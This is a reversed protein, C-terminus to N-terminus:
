TGHDSGAQIDFYKEFLLDYQIKIWILICPLAKLSYPSVFNDRLVRPFIDTPSLVTLIFTAIILILNSRKIDQSFFWIAAGSIAIIYTPSEAKHNFIVMWILISALFHIRFTKNSFLHFRVMPILLGIFGLLIIINKSLYLHFWNELVGMLSLGSSITIDNILLNLWSKYLFVLQDWSIVLIPLLGITLFWLFSSGVFKIRQPYLFFLLAALVGFLKLYLSLAIVLSAMLIRRNEFSNFAFIAFAAITANSQSNQVSTILEILIFWLIWANMEKKNLPLYKIAFFLLLANFLNWLVLGPLDPLVALPAFLLAFTPSYKYYDWHQDPYLSYLDKNEILHYFSHKYILYNNHHTYETGDFIKEGKHYELISAAAVLVV